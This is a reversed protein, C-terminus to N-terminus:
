KSQYVYIPLVDDIFTWNDVTLNHDLLQYQYVTNNHSISKHVTILTNIVVTVINNMM